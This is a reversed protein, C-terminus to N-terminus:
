AQKECCCACGFEVIKASCNSLEISLKVEYNDATGELIYLKTAPVQAELLLHYILLIFRVFLKESLYWMWIECRLECYFRLLLVSYLRVDTENFVLLLM